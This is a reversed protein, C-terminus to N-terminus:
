LIDVLIAPIITEIAILSSVTHYSYNNEFVYGNIKIYLTHEM